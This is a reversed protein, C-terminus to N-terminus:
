YYAPNLKQEFSTKTMFDQLLSVPIKRNCYLFTAMIYPFTLTQTSNSRSVLKRDFRIENTQTQMIERSITFTHFRVVPNIFSRKEPAMLYNFGNYMFDVQVQKSVLYDRSRQLLLVGVKLLVDFDIDAIFSDTSISM